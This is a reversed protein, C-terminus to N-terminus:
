EHIGMQALMLQTEVLPLGVVNSYSGNIQKVFKGGIGQIAYSGAKDQPEGTQWYANIQKESLSTFEVETKVVKSIKKDAGFMAVSTMVIHRQRSLKKLVRMSDNQSLPKGFIEDGLTVITDAGIVISDPNKLWISHAKSNALRRVLAEPLEGSFPTEDIDAMQIEFDSLLYSLLAHRRSSASALIVKPLDSLNPM